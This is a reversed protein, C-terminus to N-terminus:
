VRKFLFNVFMKLKAKNQAFSQITAGKEINKVWISDSKGWNLFYM